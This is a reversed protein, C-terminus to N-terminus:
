RAVAHRVSRPGTSRSDAALCLDRLACIILVGADHAAESTQAIRRCAAAHVLARRDGRLLVRSIISMRMFRAYAARGMLRLHEPRHDGLARRHRARASRRAAPREYNVLFVIAPTSLLFVYDWGQPSLLPMLTLLLAGELGEPFPM